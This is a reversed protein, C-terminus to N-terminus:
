SMRCCTQAMDRLELSTVSRRVLPLLSRPSPPSARPSPRAASPLSGLLSRDSSDRRTSHTCLYRTHRHHIPHGTRSLVIYKTHDEPLIIFQFKLRLGRGSSKLLGRSAAVGRARGAARPANSHLARGAVLMCLLWVQRPNLARQRCVRGCVVPDRSEAMGLAAVRHYVTESRM